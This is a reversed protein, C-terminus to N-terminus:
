ISYVYMNLLYLSDRHLRPHWCASYGSVGFSVLTFAVRASLFMEAAEERSRAAQWVIECKAADYTEFLCNFCPAVVFLGFM